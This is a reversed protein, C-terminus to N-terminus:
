CSKINEKTYRTLTSAIFINIIKIVDTRNKCNNRPKANISLLSTPQQYVTSLCSDYGLPFFLYKKFKQKYYISSIVFTLYIYHKSPQMIISTVHLTLQLALIM